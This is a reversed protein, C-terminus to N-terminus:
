RVMRAPTRLATGPNTWEPAITLAAHFMIRWRNNSGSRPTVTFRQVQALDKSMAASAPVETIADAPWSAAVEVPDTEILTVM